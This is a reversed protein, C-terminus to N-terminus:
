GRLGRCRPLRAGRVAAQLASGSGPDIRCVAYGDFLARLDGRAAASDSDDHKDYRAVKGPAPLMGFTRRSGPILGARMEQGRGTAFEYGCIDGTQDRHALLYLDPRPYLLDGFVRRRAMPDITAAERLRHHLDQAAELTMREPLIERAADLLNPAAARTLGRRHDTQAFAYQRLAAHTIRLLPKRIHPPLDSLDAELSQTWSEARILAAARAKTQAARRLDNSHMAGARATLAASISQPLM